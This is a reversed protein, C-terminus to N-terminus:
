FRLRRLNRTKQLMDVTISLAASSATDESSIVWSEENLMCLSVLGHWEPLSSLSLKPTPCQMAEARVDGRLEAMSLRTHFQLFLCLGWVALVVMCAWPVCLILSACGSSWPCSWRWAALSM